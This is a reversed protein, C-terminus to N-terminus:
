RNELTTVFLGKLMELGNERAQRLVMLREQPCAGHHARELAMGFGNLEVFASMAQMVGIVLREVLQHFVVLGDLLYALLPHDEVADDAETPTAPHRGVALQSLVSDGFAVPRACPLELTEDLVLDVLCRELSLGLVPEVDADSVLHGARCRTLVLFRISQIGQALEGAGIDAEDRRMQHESLRELRLAVRVLGDLDPLASERLCAGGDEQRHDFLMIERFFIGFASDASCLVGDRLGALIEESAEEQGLQIESELHDILSM